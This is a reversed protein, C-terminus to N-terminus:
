SAIVAVTFERIQTLNTDKFVVSFLFTAEEAVYFLKEHGEVFPSVEKEELPDVIYNTCKNAVIDKYGWVEYSSESIDSYFSYYGVKLKRELFYAHGEFNKEIYKYYKDNSQLQYSQAFELEQKEQNVEFRSIFLGTTTDEIFEHLDGSNKRSSDYILSTVVENRSVEIPEDEVGDITTLYSVVQRKSVTRITWGIGIVEDKYFDVISLNDTKKVCYADVKEPTLKLKEPKVESNTFYGIIHKNDRVYNFEVSYSIAVDTLFDQDISKVIHRNWLENVNNKTSFDEEVVSYLVSKAGAYDYEDKKLLDYNDDFLENEKTPKKGYWETSTVTNTEEVVTNEKKTTITTGRTFKIEDLYYKAETEVVTKENTAYSSYAEKYFDTDDTIYTSTKKLSSAYILNNYAKNAIIKAETANIVELNDGIAFPDFETSESNKSCGNLGVILLPLLLLYKKNM